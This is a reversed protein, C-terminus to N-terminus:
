LQPALRAPDAYLTGGAYYGSIKDEELKTIVDPGKIRPVGAFQKGYLSRVKVRDSRIVSMMMPIMRRGGGFDPFLEVELYRVLHEPEDVWLDVINGVAAGDGAQVTLGRPDRGASVKFEPLASMPRIKPKGHGTLEPEDRRPAWSAPGVGDAMPDGTPVFPSGGAEASRALALDRKEKEMTPVTVTGRGHPLIYTKESPVPFPGQNAAVEGDDNELPYGEHMNARQLYIILLAFFVWFAWISASALDFNGFAEVGVM